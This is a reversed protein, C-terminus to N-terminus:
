AVIQHSNEYYVWVQFTLEQVSRAACHKPKLCDKLIKTTTLTPGLAEHMCGWASTWRRKYSGYVLNILSVTDVIQLTLAVSIVRHNLGNTARGSSWLETGLVCMLLEWGDVVGAGISGAWPVGVGKGSRQACLWVSICVHAYAFLLWLWSVWRVISM